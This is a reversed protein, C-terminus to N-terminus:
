DASISTPMRTGCCRCHPRRGRCDQAGPLRHGAPKTPDHYTGVAEVGRRYMTDTYWLSPVRPPHLRASAPAYVVRVLRQQADVLRVRPALLYEANAMAVDSFREAIHFQEHAIAYRDMLPGM